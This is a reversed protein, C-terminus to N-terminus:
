VKLGNPNAPDSEIYSSDREFVCVSPLAQTTGNTFQYGLAGLKDLVAGTKDTGLVDAHLEMIIVRFVPEQLLAIVDGEGGEIDMLLMDYRHEALWQHQDVVDVEIPRSRGSERQASSAWFEDHLNFTVTEAKGRDGLVGEVLTHNNLDNAAMIRRYHRAAAPNPEFSTVHVDNGERQLRASVYGIGGGLDLIRDGPRLHHLALDVEDTEYDWRSLIKRMTYTLLRRDFPVKIGYPEAYGRMEDFFYRAYRVPKSAKRRAQGPDITM